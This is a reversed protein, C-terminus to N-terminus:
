LQIRNMQPNLLELTNHKGPPVSGVTHTHERDAPQLLGAISCGFV